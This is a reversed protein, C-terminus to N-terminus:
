PMVRVHGTLPTLGESVITLDRVEEATFLLLGRPHATETAPSVVLGWRAAITERHTLLPYSRDVVQRRWAALWTPGLAVGYTWLPSGIPRFAVQQGRAIPVDLGEGPPSTPPGSTVKALAVMDPHVKSRHLYKLRAM